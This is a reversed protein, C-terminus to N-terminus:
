TNYQSAQSVSIFTTSLSLVYTCNDTFAKAIFSFAVNVRYLGPLSFLGRSHFSIPFPLLKQVKFGTLFQSTFPTLYLLLELISM